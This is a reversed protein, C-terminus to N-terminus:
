AHAEGEMILRPREIYNWRVWVLHDSCWWRATPSAPNALVLRCDKDSGTSSKPCRGHVVAGLYTSEKIRPEELVEITAGEVLFRRQGCEDTFADGARTVIGEHIETRRVKAGPLIEKGNVDKM